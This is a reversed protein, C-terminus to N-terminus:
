LLLMRQMQKGGRDGKWGVKLNSSNRRVDSCRHIFTDKLTFGSSDSSASTSMPRGFFIDQYLVMLVKRRSHPRVMRHRLVTKWTIHTKQVATHLLYFLSVWSNQAWFTAASLRNSINKGSMAKEHFIGKPLWRYPIKRTQGLWLRYYVGRTSFYPCCFKVYM